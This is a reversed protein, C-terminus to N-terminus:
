MLRAGRYEPLWSQTTELLDKSILLRRLRAMHQRLIESYIHFYDTGYPLSSFSLEVGQIM